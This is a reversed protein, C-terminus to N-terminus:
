RLLIIGFANVCGAMAVALQVEKHGLETVDTCPLSLLAVGTSEDNM